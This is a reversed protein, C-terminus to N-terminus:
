SWVSCVAFVACTIIRFNSGGALCAVTPSSIWHLVWSLQSPKSLLWKLFSNIISSLKLFVIKLTEPVTRDCHIPLLSDCVYDCLPCLGYAHRGSFGFTLSPFVRYSQDGHQSDHIAKLSLQIQFYQNQNWSDAQIRQSCGACFQITRKWRGIHDVITWAIGIM